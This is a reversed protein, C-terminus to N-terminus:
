SAATPEVSPIAAAEHYRRERELFPVIMSLCRVEVCQPSYLDLFSDGRPHVNFAKSRQLMVPLVCKCTTSQSCDDLAVTHAQLVDQVLEWARSHHGSLQAQEISEELNLAAQFSLLSEKDPFVARQISIRYPAYVFRELGVLTLTAQSYDSKTTSMFFLIVIRDVLAVAADSLKILRGATRAVLAQAKDDASDLAKCLAAKGGASPVRIALARAVDRLEDVLLLPLLASGTPAPSACLGLEELSDAAASLDDAIEPYSLKKIRLWRHKRNSLRVFLRVGDCSATLLANLLQRENIDVLHAFGPADLVCQAMFRFNREYYPMEDGSLALAQGAASDLSAASFPEIVARREVMAGDEQEVLSTDPAPPASAPRVASPHEPITALHPPSPSPLPSSSLATVAAAATEPASEGDEPVVLPLAHSGDDLWNLVEPPPATQLAPGLCASDLHRNMASVPFQLGCVPCPATPAADRKAATDLLMRFVSSTRRIRRRPAPLTASPSDSKAPLSLSRARRPGDSPAPDTDGAVDSGSASTSLRRRKSAM